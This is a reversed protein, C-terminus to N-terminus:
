LPVIRISKFFIHETFEDTVAKVIYSIKIFKLLMYVFLCVHMNQIHGKYFM